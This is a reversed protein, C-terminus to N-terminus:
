FLQEPEKLFRLRLQRNSGCNFPLVVIFFSIIQKSPRGSANLPQTLSSSIAARSGPDLIATSALSLCFLSSNPLLRAAAAAAKPVACCYDFLGATLADRQQGSVSVCQLSATAECHSEPSPIEAGVPSPRRKRELALHDSGRALKLRYAEHFLARVYLVLAEGVDRAASGVYALTERAALGTATLLVQPPM